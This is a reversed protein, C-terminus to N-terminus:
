RQKRWLNKIKKGPKIIRGQEDMMPARYMEFAVWLGGIIFLLGLIKM